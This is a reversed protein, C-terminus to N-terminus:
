YDEDDGDTFEDWVESDTIGERMFEKFYEANGLFYNKTYDDPFYLEEDDLQFEEDEDDEYDDEDDDEDDEYEEEDEFFEDHCYSNYEEHSFVIQWNNLSAHDEWCDIDSKRLQRCFYIAMKKLPNETNLFVDMGDETVNHCVSIELYELNQFQQVRAVEKLVDNDLSCCREIDIRVLSPSSLLLILNERPITSKSDIARLSLKELQKLIPLEINTCEEELKATSYSFNSNLSLFHLNPCLEAIIRINVKSLSSLSLSKLSNGFTKLIPTVGGAFTVRGGCGLYGGINLICLNELSLLSLLDGNTLRESTSIKVEVVSPCMSVVLGLTKPIYDEHPSVELKNLSYKPIESFKSLYNENHIKALSQVTAMDWMKLNTLNELAMQIGSITISSGHSCFKQFSRRLGLKSDSDEREHASSVCLGEVGSDTINM